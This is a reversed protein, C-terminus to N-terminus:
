MDFKSSSVERQIDWLCSQSLEIPYLVFSM